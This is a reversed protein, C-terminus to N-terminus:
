EQVPSDTKPPDNDKNTINKNELYRPGDCRHRNPLMAGFKELLKVYDAEERTVKLASYFTNTIPGVHRKTNEPNM